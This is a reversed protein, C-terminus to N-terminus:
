MSSSMHRAQETSTQLRICRQARRQPQPLVIVHQVRSVHVGEQCQHAEVAVEVPRAGLHPDGASAPKLTIATAQLAQM